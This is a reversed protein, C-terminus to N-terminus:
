SYLIFLDMHSHIEIMNLAVGVIMLCEGGRKLDNSEKWDNAKTSYHHAISIEDDLPPIPNYQGILLKSLNRCLSWRIAAWGLPLCTKKSKPAGKQITSACRGQSTFISKGNCEAAILLGSDCWQCAIGFTTKIYNSKKEMSLEKVATRSLLHM